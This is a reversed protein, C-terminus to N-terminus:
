KVNFLIILSNKKKVFTKMINSHKSFVKLLKDLVLSSLKQKKTAKSSYKIVYIKHILNINLEHIMCKYMM